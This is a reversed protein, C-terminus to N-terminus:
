SCPRKVKRKHVLFALSEALNVLFVGGVSFNDSFSGVLHRYSSFWVKQKQHPHDYILFLLVSEAPRGM